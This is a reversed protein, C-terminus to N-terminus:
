NGERLSDLEALLLAEAEADTLDDLCPLDKVPQIGKEATKEPGRRILNLAPVEQGLYGVLTELTPYDFVITAPLPHGLSLSLANRLEVAMLSDLGLERLPRHPDIRRGPGLGLVRAAQHGAHEILLDMRNELPADMLQQLFEPERVSSSKVVRVSPSIFEEFLPRRIRGPMHRSFGSWDAKMAMVQPGPMGLMRGLSEFGEQPSIFDLGRASFQQRKDSDLEEAMGADAWPGWNVSLAKLGANRRYWAMADLFANAAAYNGQGPWGFISVASSFMVFFDLPMDKTLVHLNWAGDVKPAMVRAFRQWDQHLLIGDDLVGAAHVIGRLPPMTSAIGAVLESVQGKNSVDTRFVRIQTGKRRLSDLVERAKEGAYARGALAIHRAGQDVMWSACKLGLAGLGGSILYTAEHGFLGNALDPENSGTAQFSVVIKGIQRARAMTKFAEVVDRAKFEM